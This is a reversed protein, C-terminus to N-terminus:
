SMLLRKKKEVQNLEEEIKLREEELNRKILQSIYCPSYGTVLAIHKMSMIPQLGEDYVSRGYRLLRFRDQLEAVSAAKVKIVKPM